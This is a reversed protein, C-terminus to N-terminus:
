QANPAYTFSPASVQKDKKALAVAQDWQRGKKYLHTALRRFELCEHAQMANALAVVDFNGFSDVSSQLKEYEGDEIYLANLADNVNPLNLQQVQELYNMVLSLNGSREVQAVVRNHDLRAILTVLTDNLQLPAHSLYFDIAKHVIEVNNGKALLTKLQGHEFAEAAHKMMCV